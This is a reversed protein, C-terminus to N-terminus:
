PSTTDVYDWLRHRIYCEHTTTYNMLTANFGGHGRVLRQELQQAHITLENHIVRQRLKLNPLAAVGRVDPVRRQLHVIRSKFKLTLARGSLKQVDKPIKSPSDTASHSGFGPKFSDVTTLEPVSDSQQDIRGDFRADSATDCHFRTAM